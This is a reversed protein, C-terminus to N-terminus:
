NAILSLALWVVTTLTAAAWIQFRVNIRQAASTASPRPEVVNSTSSLATSSIRITSSSSNTSNTAKSQSPDSSPASPSTTPPGLSATRTAGLQILTKGGTVAMAVTLQSSGHLLTIPSGPALTMGNVIFDGQENRHVTPTPWSVATDADPKRSSAEAESTVGVSSTSSATGQSAIITTSQATSSAHARSEDSVLKFSTLTTAQVILSMISAIYGAVNTTQEETVVASLPPASSSVRAVQTTPSVTPTEALPRDTSPSNSFSATDEHNSISSGQSSEGGDAILSALDSAQNKSGADATTSPDSTKTPTSSSPASCQSATEYSVASTATTMTIVNAVPLTPTAMVAQETLAIPPDYLGELAAGCDAWEPALTRLASPVVLTPNWTPFITSCGFMICSPQQEYDTVPTLGALDTYNIPGYSNAASQGVKGGWHWQTSVDTPNMALLTGTHNQGVRTCWNSAYVTSLSIYVTPSFLTIGNTLEMSRTAPTSMATDTNTTPPWYYLEVSGGYISCKGCDNSTSLTVYRCSPTPKTLWSNSVAWETATTVKVSPSPRGLAYVPTITVQRNTENTHVNQKTVAVSATSFTKYVDITTSMLSPDQGYTTYYLSWGPAPDSTRDRDGNYTSWLDKCASVVGGALSQCSTDNKHCYATCPPNGEDDNCTEFWLGPLKDYISANNFATNSQESSPPQHSETAISDNASPNRRYHPVQFSQASRVFEVFFMRCLRCLWLPRVMWSDQVNNSYCFLPHAAVCALAELDKWGGFRPADSKLPNSFLCRRINRRRYCNKEELAHEHFAREVGIQYTDEEKGSALERQLEQLFTLPDDDHVLQKVNTLSAAMHVFLRRMCCGPSTREYLRQRIRRGPYWTVGEDDGLMALLASDLLADEFDTDDIKNGLFYAELMNEWFSERFVDENGKANKGTPQNIFLKGRHRWNLYINFAAPEHRPLEISIQKGHPKKELLIAQFYGSSTCLINANIQFTTAPDGVSVAIPPQFFDFADGAPRTTEPLVSHPTPAM